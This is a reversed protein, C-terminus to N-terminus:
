RRDRQRSSAARGEVDGEGRRGGTRQGRAGAEGDGAVIRRLRGDVEGEAPRARGRRRGRRARGDGEVGARESESRHARAGRLHEGRLHLVRAARRQVHGADGGAGAGRARDGPRRRARERHRGAPAGVEVDGESRHDGARQGRAGAELDRAIVRRLRGYVEGEAPRGRRRRYRDDREIGGREVEPRDGDAGHPPEGHLHLVGAIGPEVHRRDRVAASRRAREDPGGGNRRRDGRARADRDVYEEDGDLVTRQGRSAADPDDAAVRRVRSDLDVDGAGTRGGASGGLDRGDPAARGRSAPPAQRERVDRREHEEADALPLRRAHATRGRGPALLISRPEAMNAAGTAAATTSPRTWRPRLRRRWASAARARTSLSSRPARRGSVMWGTMSVSMQMPLRVQRLAHGSPSMRPTTSPTGRRTIGSWQMPWPLQAACHGTPAMLSTKPVESRPTSRGITSWYKSDLRGPTWMTPSSPPMPRMLFAMAWPNCTLSRSASTVGRSRVAAPVTSTAMTPPPGAPRAVASPSWSFPRLKRTSSCPETPPVM